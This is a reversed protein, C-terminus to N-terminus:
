IKRAKQKSRTDDSELCGKGSLRATEFWCLLKSAFARLLQSLMHRVRGLWSLSQVGAHDKPPNRLVVRTCTIDHGACAMINSTGDPTALFGTQMETRIPGLQM